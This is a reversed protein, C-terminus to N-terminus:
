AAFVKWGMIEQTDLAERARALQAETGELLMLYKGAAIADHYERVGRDPIGLGALGGVAAGGAAGVAGGTAMTALASTALSGVAFVPGLGPITAIVPTVVGLLELGAVSLGVISGVAAGKGAAESLNENEAHVKIAAESSGDEEKQELEMTDAQRAIFTIQEKPFDVALLTSVIEVAREQSAFLGIARYIGSASM